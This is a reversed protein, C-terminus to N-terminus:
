PASGGTGRLRPAVAGREAPQRRAARGDEDKAIVEESAILGDRIHVIRDGYRAAEADHTVMVVYRKGPEPLGRLLHLIEASTASDLNGTPEDCLVAEPEIVLARAIAVRQMEGGSLQDPYHTAREKLGVRELVAQAPGLAKGRRQGSLLLPLAVNEVATLTPLLNFFQFVFGIRTRRLQSLERDSLSQLDRGAFLVRGSTPKDLAGLLHMLTSKGSGSPGMISVFEGTNISLSVGRVAQVVRSGQQYDKTVNQLEHEAGPKM